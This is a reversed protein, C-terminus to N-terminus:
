LRPVEDCLGEELGELNMEWRREEELEQHFMLMKPHCSHIWQSSPIFCCFVFVLVCLRVEPNYLMYAYMSQFVNIM